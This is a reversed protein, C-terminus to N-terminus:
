AKQKAQRAANGAAIAARMREDDDKYVPPKGGGTTSTLGSITAAPKAAPAAKPDVAPQDKAKAAEKAKAVTEYKAAYAAEVRDAAEKFSLRTKSDPYAIVKGDGDKTARDELDQVIVAHVLSGADFTRTLLYADPHDEVFKVAADRHAQIVASDAATRAQEARQTAADDKAKAEAAITAKLEDLQKKTVPAGSSELFAANAQEISLGAAQLVALADKKAVADSLAKNRASEATLEAARADLAAKETALAARDAAVKRQHQTEREIAAKAGKDDVVPAVPPVVPAADVKPADVKPATAALVQSATLPQAAPAVPPVVAPAAPPVVVTESM